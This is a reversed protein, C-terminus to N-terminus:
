PSVALVTPGQAKIFNMGVVIGVLKYHAMFFYGAARAKLHEFIM